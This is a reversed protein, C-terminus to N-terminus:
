PHNFDLSYNADARFEPTFYKTSMPSDTAHGNSNLWTWDGAFPAEKTLREASIEPRLIAAAAASRRGADIREAGIRKRCANRKPRKM